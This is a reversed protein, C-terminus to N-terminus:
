LPKSSSAPLLLPTLQIKKPRKLMRGFLQAHKPIIMVGSGGRAEGLYCL